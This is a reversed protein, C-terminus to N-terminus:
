FADEDVWQLEPPLDENESLSYPIYELEVVTTGSVDCVTWAVHLEPDESFMLTQAMMYGIVEGQTGLVEYQALPGYGYYGDAIEVGFDREEWVKLIKEPINDSQRINTSYYSIEKLIEHSHGFQFELQDAQVASGLFCAMLVLFLRM